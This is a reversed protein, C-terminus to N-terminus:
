ERNIIQLMMSLNLAEIQGPASPHGACGFTMCSGFIEGGIRTIAGLKGMAIVIIPVRAFKERMDVTAQLVSLVDTRSSPMVAIKCLDAGLDQMKEMTRIMDVTSPTRAFDHSSLILKVNQRHAKQLLIGIVSDGAALEVDILDPHGYLLVLRNVFLYDESSLYKEGGEPQTRFTFLILRDPLHRRLIAFADEVQKRSTLTPHYDARWEVVDCPVTKLAIAMEELELKDKATIPLCIKPMGQGFTVHRVQCIVDNM